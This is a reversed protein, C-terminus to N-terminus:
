SYREKYQAPTFGTHKKFLLTFHSKNTYGVLEAIQYVKKDSHRLYQKAQEIRYATLYDFVSQGRCAKFVQNIHNVSAYLEDAIHQVALSTGYREHVIGAIRNALQERYGEERVVQGTDREEQLLKRRETELTRERLVKSLAREVTAQLEAKRVPKLVYDAAELQLAEKVFSFDNYNSMYVLQTSAHRKRIRRGLEIGDMLPMEVDTIVLDPSAGGIGSMADLGNAYIGAIECELSQWPLLGAIGRRDLVNDDVIVVQYM